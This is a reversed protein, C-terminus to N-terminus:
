GEPTMGRVHVVRQPFPIGIGADDLARKVERVTAQRVNLYETKPTWVRVQWNVSSDGLSKLVVVPPDAARGPVAGAARELIERTRDLDASYDVGVDIDARRLDNHTNNEIISGFVQNNPIIIRRNDFTDLRTTFLDIERITGTHGCITVIDGLKFPRFVALMAGASINTLSGQLALGIALGGAGIATAFMTSPVGFIGLCTVVALILIVVRAANALFAALTAEIRAKDLSRRTIVSVRRAVWLSLLLFVVAGAARVGYETLLPAVRDVYQDVGLHELTGRIIGPSGAPASDLAADSAAQALIPAFM